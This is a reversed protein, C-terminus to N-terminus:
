NAVTALGDALTLSVAATREVAVGPGPQQAVVYGHGEISLRCDCGSMARVATRMSLGRLDPMRGDFQEVTPLAAPPVDADITVVPPAVALTRHIHLYDLSAEAIRKFIPAAVVGGYHHKQPEDVVVAIVLRPDDAPLYGVFSSVWKQKSYRGNEVKQATGTKGAVQLGDIAARTATGGPETVAVLMQSTARAAESSVVRAEEEPGNSMLTAGDHGSISRVIYPKMRVGDNALVAFSSALQLANIAIGQGFSINAVHIERWRSSPSMLGPVEGILGAAKSSRGYGFARLYAALREAGLEAGIKASCINSSVKIIEPVTLRGYPHHDHITWRGIRLAGNECFFEDETTVVGADLAAAMLLAKTTSGPEFIDTVARNRRHAKPADFFRNPDFAPATAMALIAGTSPEMIVVTGGAAEFESVQAGLEAEAIAQLTADLTLRVTAGRNVGSMDSENLFVRGSVDKCLRVSVQNGRIEEDFIREIGELGQADVGTFGIVHAGLPGQPYARHQDRHIDIGGIALRRIRNASDVDVSKSLWIFKRGDERLTSDLSVVDMGLLPALRAADQEDYDYEARRAAVRSAAMSTALATGNRDLIAGRYSMRVTERCTINQVQRKLESGDVVSLRYMRATIATAGAICM